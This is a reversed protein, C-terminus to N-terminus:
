QCTRTHFLVISSRAQKPVMAGPSIIALHKEDKVHIATMPQEISAVAGILEPMLKLYVLGNVIVLSPLLILINPVM